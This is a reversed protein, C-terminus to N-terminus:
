ILDGIAVQVFGLGRGAQASAPVGSASESASTQGLRPRGDLGRGPWKRQLSVSAGQLEGEETEAIKV